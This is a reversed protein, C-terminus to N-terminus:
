VHSIRKSELLVAIFLLGLMIIDVILQAPLQGQHSFEPDVLATGPFFIAGLQTAWYLGALAVSLKLKNQEGIKMVWLVWLALLGTTTGLLMDQANHFKAHPTWNPNFIHTNNWDFIYSGFAAYLAVISILLRGTLLTKM